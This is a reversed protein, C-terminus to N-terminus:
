TVETKELGKSTLRYVTDCVESIYKRDHSISIITGPFQKLVARVEPGSLPSFYDYVTKAKEEDALEQPLYGLLEGQLTRGRDFTYPFQLMTLFATRGFFCDSVNM